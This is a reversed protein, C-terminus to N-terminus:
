HGWWGFLGLHQNALWFHEHSFKVTHTQHWHSIKCQNSIDECLTRGQHCIKRERKCYNLNQTNPNGSAPPYLSEWNTGNFRQPAWPPCVFSNPRWQNQQKSKYECADCSYVSVYTKALQANGVTRGMLGQCVSWREWIYHPMEVSTDCVCVIFRNQTNDTCMQTNAHACLRETPMSDGGGEM